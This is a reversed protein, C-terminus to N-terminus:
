QAECDIERYANLETLYARPEVSFLVESASYEYALEGGQRMVQVPEFAEEDLYDNFEMHDELRLEPGPKKRPFVQEYFDILFCAISETSNVLFAASIADLTDEGLADVHQGHSVKAVTNRVESLNHSINVLSRTIQKLQASHDSDFVSVTKTMLQQVSDNAGYEAGKEHLITKCVSELLAKTNEVAISFDSALYGDIRICYEELGKWRSYQTILQRLREM